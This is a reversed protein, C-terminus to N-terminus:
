PADTVVGAIAVAKAMSNDDVLREGGYFWGANKQQSITRKQARGGDIFLWLM